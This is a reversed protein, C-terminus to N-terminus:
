DGGCNTTCVTQPVLKYTAALYLTDTVNGQDTGSAAFSYLTDPSLPATSIWQDVPYLLTGVERKVIPVSAGSPDTLSAADVTVIRVQCSGGRGSCVKDHHGTVAAVANGVFSLTDGNGYVLTSPFQLTYTHSWSAPDPNQCSVNAIVTETGDANIIRAFPGFPGCTVQALAATCLGFCLMLLAFLKKM